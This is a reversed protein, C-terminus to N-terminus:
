YEIKKQISITDLDINELISIIKKSAHGEGYQSKQQKVRKLFKKDHLTKQIAQIIAKKNHEVHIVSKSALRGSQRSGINITPIGLFPAEMIGSSSNGIIASAHKLLNIYKTFSITSLYKLNSKKIENVIKESGFDTNGLIMVAQIKLENIAQIIQLIYKGGHEAETTVTHQIVIVFPKKLNIEFEKELVSQHIKPMNQINDLSPNGVTFVYKPKEGMKILRKSAEKNSTFHLHSFKTTAHRISEDITGTVEGGEVHAVIKNLHAGVISVALNSGIDFGSLIITPNLKEIINSLEIVCKGFAKVMEVASDKKQKSYMHFKKTIKFGDSQIEKISDGYESLLHSGTVILYYDLKQSKEIEKLIPRFKSYDARRETVM